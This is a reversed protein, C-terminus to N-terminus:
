EKYINKDFYHDIDKDGNRKNRFISAIIGKSQFKDRLKQSDFGADANIFLGDVNIEAQELPSIVEEFPVEIDFLDNLIESEPESMAMPLGQRDTLYLASTTKRKKSGQYGVQEGGKLAKTHSSDM